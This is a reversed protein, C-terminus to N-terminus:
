CDGGQVCGEWIDWFCCGSNSDIEEILRGNRLAILRSGVLGAEVLRVVQILRGRTKM